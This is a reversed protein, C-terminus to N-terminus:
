EVRRGIRPSDGCGSSCSVSSVMPRSVCASAIRRSRSSEARNRRKRRLRCKQSLLSAFRPKTPQLKPRRRTAGQLAEPTPPAPPSAQSEVHPAPLRRISDAVDPKPFQAALLVEVQRTSKRMCQEFLLDANDATLHKKM